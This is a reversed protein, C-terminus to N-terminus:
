DARPYIRAASDRKLRTTLRPGPPPSSKPRGLLRKAVARTFLATATAIAAKGVKKLGAVVLQWFRSWTRPPMSKKWDFFYGNSAQKRQWGPLGERETARSRRVWDLYGHHRLRQLAQNVRSLCLGLETAITVQATFLEGTAPNYDDLYAALVHEDGMRLRMAAEELRAEIARIERALEDVTARTYTARGGDRHPYAASKWKEGVILTRYDERMAGLRLRLAPPSDGNLHAFRAERSQKVVDEGCTLRLANKVVRWAERSGDLVYVWPKGEPSDVDYSHRWVHDRRRDPDLQAAMGAAIEGFSRPGFTRATM